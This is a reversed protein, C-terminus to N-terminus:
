SQFGSGPEGSARSAVSKRTGRSHIQGHAARGTTVALTALSSWYLLFDDRFSTPMPQEIWEVRHGLSELLEADRDTGAVTAGAEALRAAVLPGLGGGVGAIAIVRGDLDSM